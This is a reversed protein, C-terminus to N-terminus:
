SAPSSPQRRLHWLHDPGLSQSAVPQFRTADVLSPQHAQTLSSAAAGGLTFPATFWWLEDVLDEALFATALEAGTEVLLRTIGRRALMRLITPLDASPLPIIEAGLSQIETFKAMQAPILSEATVIWLPAQRASQCLKHHPEIRFRRDILIRVPSQSELGPLRCTLTPDDALLTGSGTLIADYHARLRHAFQRSQPSTIWQSEGKASAIRGDLSTAIKLAIHPRGLTTKSFFGNHQLRAASEEVGTTVSIGAARLMAIGQGNVRPDPDETAIVARAIEADILSKACPPTRGQHACPELTVYATADRAQAGAQALAMTEAHPRGGPQTHGRGVIINDKVLVCGVAPNPWVHGLARAALRLAHRM